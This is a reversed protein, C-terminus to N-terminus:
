KIHLSVLVRSVMNYSSITVILEVLGREDFREALRFFLDDDIAVNRTLSDTAEIVMAHTVGDITDSHWIGALSEYTQTLDKLGEMQPDSAGAEVLLPAHQDWEYWASNVVAIRCIALERLRAPLTTSGRVAGMLTNWGRAVPPSHLLVRDLEILGNPGRRKRIEDAIDGPVDPDLYPIRPSM